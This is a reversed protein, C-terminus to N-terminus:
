IAGAIEHRKVTDDSLTHINNVSKDKATMIIGLSIGFLANFGIAVAVILNIQSVEKFFAEYSTTVFVDWDPAVTKKQSIVMRDDRLEMNKDAKQSLLAQNSSIAYVGNQDVVNFEYDTGLIDRINESIDSVKYSIGLMGIFKNDSFIPETQIVINDGTLGQFVPSVYRRYDSKTKYFYNRSSFNTGEIMSNRPYVGMAIGDINYIVVRDAIDTKDYIDKVTQGLIQSDNTILGNKTEEDSAVSTLLPRDKNFFKEIDRTLQQATKELRMEVKFVQGKQYLNILYLGLVISLGIWMFVPFLMASNGYKIKVTLNQWVALFILYIGTLYSLYSVDCNSNVTLIYGAYFLFLGGPILLLYVLKNKKWNPNLLYVLFPTIIAFLVGYIINQDFSLRQFSQPSFEGLGLLSFVGWIVVIFLTYKVIGTRFTNELDGVKFGRVIHEIVVISFAVTYVVLGYNKSIIAWYCLIGLVIAQFVHVGLNWKELIPHRIFRVLSTIGSILLLFPILIPLLKEPFSGSLSDQLLQIKHIYFYILGLGIIFSVKFLRFFFVDGSNISIYELDNNEFSKKESNNEGGKEFNFVSRANQFKDTKKETQIFNGDDLDTIYPLITRYLIKIKGRGIRKFSVDGSHIYKYLTNTSVGMLRSADKVSCYRPLIRNDSILKDM